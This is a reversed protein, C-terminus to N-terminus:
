EALQAEVARDVNAHVPEVGLREVFRDARVAAICPFTEDSPHEDLDSLTQMAITERARLRKLYRAHIQAAM